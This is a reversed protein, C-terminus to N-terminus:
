IGLTIDSWPHKQLFPGPMKKPCLYHPSACSPPLIPTLIPTVTPALPPCSTGLSISPFSSLIKSFQPFMQGHNSISQMSTTNIATPINTPTTLGVMPQTCAELALHPPFCVDVDASRNTCSIADRVDSHAGVVNGTSSKKGSSHSVAGM